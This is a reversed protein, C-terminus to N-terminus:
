DRVPALHLVVELRGSRLPRLRLRARLGHEGEAELEGHTGPPLGNLEFRGDSRTRAQAGGPARVLVGSLPQANRADLATGVVSADGAAAAGGAPEADRGGCAALLALVLVLAAPGVPVRPKM